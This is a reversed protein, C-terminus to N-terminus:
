LKKESLKSFVDYINKATFNNREYVRITLDTFLSVVSQIVPTMVPLRAFQRKAVVDLISRHSINFGTEVSKFLRSRSASRVEM